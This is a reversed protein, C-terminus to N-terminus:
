FNVSLDYPTKRYVHKFESCINLAAVVSIRCVEEEALSPIPRRLKYSEEM